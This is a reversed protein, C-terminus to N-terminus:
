ASSRPGTARGDVGVRAEAAGVDARDDGFTDNNLTTEIQFVKVGADRLVKGM